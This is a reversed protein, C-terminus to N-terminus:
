TDKSPRRPCLRTDVSPSPTLAQSPNFTAPMSPKRYPASPPPFCPPMISDSVHQLQPADLPQTPQTILPSPLPKTGINWLKTSKNRTDTIIPHGNRSITALSSTFTATCGHDCLQGVSLLSGSALSPFVHVTKASPPLNNINLNAQHTSTIHQHNPLLVDIPDKTPHIDTLIPNTPVTPSTSFFHHTAGTDLIVNNISHQSQVLTNNLKFPKSITSGVM